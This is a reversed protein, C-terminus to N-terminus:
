GLEDDTGGDSSTASSQRASRPRRRPTSPTETAASCGPERSARSPAARDWASPLDKSSLSLMKPMPTSPKVGLRRHTAHWFQHCYVCLTQINSPDNNRWDEDIHHAHLKSSGGCAECTPKRLKRARAHFAKRSLGGKSRSSSCSISCFQRSMFRGYDELQGGAFRQRQFRAGCILCRKEPTPKAPVSM